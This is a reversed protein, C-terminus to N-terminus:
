GPSVLDVLAGDHVLSTAAALDAGPERDRDLHNVRSRIRAHAEAIGTGPAPLGDGEGPGEGRLAALRLDIAQAGVILEIAVIREVGALIARAHRASISGM